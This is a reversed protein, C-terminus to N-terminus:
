VRCGNYTIYLIYLIGTYHEKRLIKVVLRKRDLFNLLTFPKGFIVFRGFYIAVMVPILTSM